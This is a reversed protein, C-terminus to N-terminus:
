QANGKVKRMLDLLPDSKEEKDSPQVSALKSRSSADLGYKESIKMLLQMYQQQIKIYPNPIPNTEGGKNTYDILLPQDVMCLTSEVYKSYCDAYIGLM